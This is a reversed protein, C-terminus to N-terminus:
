GRCRARMSPKEHQGISHASALFPFYCRLGRDLIKRRAKARSGRGFPEAREQHAQGLLGVYLNVLGSAGVTRAARGHCGCQNRASEAVIANDHRVGAIRTAIQDALVLGAQQRAIVGNGLVLGADPQDGRLLRRFRRVLWM